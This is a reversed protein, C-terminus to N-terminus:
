WGLAKRAEALTEETYKAAKPVCGMDKAYSITAHLNDFGTAYYLQVKAKRFPASIQSKATMFTIFKGVHQEGNKISKGGYLALRLTAAFKLANGGPTVKKDGFLVGINDRTQNIIFLCARKKVALSPIIRMAKSMQKARQGPRDGKGAIGEELEGQSQSAALSDWGIFHPPGDPDADPLSHLVEQMWLLTDEITDPEEYIVKKTDCGFVAARKSDLKKETEALATIGGLQQVAAMIHCLFSTKGVGEDAYVEMIRGIPLGGIGFVYQDLIDIGTPIVGLIDSASGASLLKAKSKGVRKQLRALTAKM